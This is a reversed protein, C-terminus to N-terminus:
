SPKSPEARGSSKIVDDSESNDMAGLVGVQSLLGGGGCVDGCNNLVSPIDWLFSSNIDSAVSNSSSKRFCSSLVLFSGFHLSEPLEPECKFIVVVISVDVKLFM